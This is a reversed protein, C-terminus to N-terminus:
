VTYLSLNDPKWGCSCAWNGYCMGGVCCMVVGVALDLLVFLTGQTVRTPLLRMLPISSFLNHLWTSTCLCIVCVIVSAFFHIGSFASSIIYWSPVLSTLNWDASWTIVSIRSSTDIVCLFTGRLVIAMDRAGMCRPCWSIFALSFTSLAYISSTKSRVLTIKHWFLLM